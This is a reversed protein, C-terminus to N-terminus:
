SASDGKTTRFASVNKCRLSAGRLSTEILVSHRECTTEVSITAAGNNERTLMNVQRSPYGYSPM